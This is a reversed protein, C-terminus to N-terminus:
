SNRKAVMETIELLLSTDLGTLALQKKAKTIHDELAKKAGELSLLRPYTSKHNATDSGVRKGLAGEDGEVDLIDDRIQFALGLHYAFKSLIELRTQDGGSLISGALVSFELLRGTKNVHVSELETLTLEKEEGEMDAAQGGVMGGAGAAKALGTILKLKEELGAYESPITGILEFSYTLLADGALIAMAEGFVKHNTPKGRRMDDDDMSPLDDHILSYTHVMEIAAAARVGQAPNKGFADMAAFLLLPRIRKGGAELSYAMAEKLSVPADLKQVSSRLEEELLQRYAKTKESLLGDAM